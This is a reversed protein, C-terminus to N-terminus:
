DVITVEVGVPVINYLEEVDQNTMRICGATAQTGISKPDTTGHIGYGPKNLGLWRTGLINKPSGPPIVEGPKYWPPNPIKEVIKFTGSPTSNNAGTAVNYTKFVTDGAKLLLINQSKDM